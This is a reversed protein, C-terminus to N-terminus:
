FGRMKLYSYMKALCNSLKKDDFLALDDMIEGDNEDIYCVEYYIFRKKITLEYSGFCVPLEKLIEDSNLASYNSRPYIYGEQKQIYYGFKTKNWWKESEQPFGGKKLEKAIELDVCYNNM